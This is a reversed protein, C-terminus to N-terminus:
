TKCFSDFDRCVYEKDEAVFRGNQLIDCTMRSIKLAILWYGAERWKSANNEACEVGSSIGWNM